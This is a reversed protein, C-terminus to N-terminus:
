ACAHRRRGHDQSRSLGRCGAPVLLRLGAAQAAADLSDFTQPQGPDQLIEVNRGLLQEFDIKGSELQAQIQAMRVPDITVAAFSRVRFLNLFDQAAARVAPFSFAVALMALAVLGALAPRYRRILSPANM